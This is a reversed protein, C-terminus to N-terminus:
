YWEPQTRRAPLSRLQERAKKLPRTEILGLQKLEVLNDVLRIKQGHMEDAYQHLPGVQHPHLPVLQDQGTQTFRHQDRLPM